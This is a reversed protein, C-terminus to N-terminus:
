PLSAFGRQRMIKNLLPALAGSFHTRCQAIASIKHKM